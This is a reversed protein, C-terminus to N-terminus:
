RTDEQKDMGELADRILKLYGLRLKKADIVRKPVRENLIELANYVTIVGCDYSNDQQALKGSKIGSDLDGCSLGSAGMILAELTPLQEALAKWTAGKFKNKGGADSSNYWRHVWHFENIKTVILTWHVETFNFFFVLKSTTTPITYIHEPNWEDDPTGSRMSALQNM